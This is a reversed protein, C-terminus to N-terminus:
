GWNFAEALKVLMFILLVVMFVGCVAAFTIFLGPIIFYGIIGSIMGSIMFLTAFWLCLVAQFIDSADFDLQRDQMYEMIGEYSAILYKIYNIIFKVM